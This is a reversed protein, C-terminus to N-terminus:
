MQWYVVDILIANYMCLKEGMLRRMKNSIGDTM